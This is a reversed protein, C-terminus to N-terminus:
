SFRTVYGRARFVGLMRLVFALAAAMLVVLEAVALGLRGWPLPDGDLLQRAAEMAHTSPLALAVPRLVGPLAEVPYFAGSLAIMVFLIGWTLIEAGNGYRMILGIVVLAICWGVLMLVAVVPVLGLGASTVDFAYLVAAATGVFTLGIALRMLSVAVLAALFESEKLPTVMMNLLNRTWTEEMFGTAMSVNSQYMVHLMLVGAIMYPVTSRAAGGQQQVFLGISGWIVVDVVPWIAVDFWRHPARRLVYLDREVVARVRLPNV